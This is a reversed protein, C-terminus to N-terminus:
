VTGTWKWNRHVVNYPRGQFIATGYKVQGDNVIHRVTRRGNFITKGDMDLIIVHANSENGQKQNEM